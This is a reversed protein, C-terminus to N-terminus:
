SNEEPTVHLAAFFRQIAPAATIEHPDLCRGLTLDALRRVRSLAVYAQGPCFFGKGPEVHVADITKGQSRHVTMAWGLMLPFQRYTGRLKRAIRKTTRDVQYDYAKWEARSVEAVACRGAIAVKVSDRGLERVTGLTGNCWERGPDNVTFVVQAGVRLRLELPAPFQGDAKRLFRGVVEGQYLEEAARISALREQNLAGATDRYPTIVLRPTGAVPAYPCLNRNIREVAPHHNEAIRIADLMSIFEPDGQRFPHRLTLPTFEAGAQLCTASFFYPSPYMNEFLIRDDWPVVPPLQYLDGVLIVQVGGFNEHSKRHRRLSLDLADVIDARVMSVEDIILTKM